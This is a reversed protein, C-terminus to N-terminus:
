YMQLIQTPIATYNQKKSDCSWQSKSCDNCIGIMNGMLDTYGSAPGAAM